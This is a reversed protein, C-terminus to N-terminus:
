GNEKHPTSATEMPFIKSGHVLVLIKHVLKHFLFIAFAPRSRLFFLGSFYYEGAEKANFLKLIL